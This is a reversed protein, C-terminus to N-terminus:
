KRALIDSAIIWNPPSKGVVLDLLDHIFGSLHEQFGSDVCEKPPAAPNVNAELLYIRNETTVMLDVGAIGFQKINTDAAAQNLSFRVRRSIDPLLRQAFTEALFTELKDQIGRDMLEPVDRLLTRETTNSMAGNTIHARPDRIGDTAETVPVGAIRVEHRNYIFMTLLDENHPEEIVAIYSRIHFKRNNKILLPPVVEAQLVSLQLM